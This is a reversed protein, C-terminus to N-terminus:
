CEVSCARDSLISLMGTPIQLDTHGLHCQKSVNSFVSSFDLSERCDASFFKLCALYQNLNVCLSLLLTRKKIDSNQIVAASVNIIGIKGGGM